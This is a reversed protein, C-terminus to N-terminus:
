GGRGYFYVAYEIKKAKILLHIHLNYFNGRTGFKLNNSGTATSESYFLVNPM